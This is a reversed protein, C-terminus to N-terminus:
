VVVAELQVASVTSAASGATVTMTLVYVQGPLTGGTDNGAITLALLKTAAVGADVAGTSVVTAGAADTRRIKLTVATGNTGVTFAAWGRLRIGSVVAMDGSVTLSAIITEVAAAPSGVVSTSQQFRASLDFGPAAYHIPEQPM